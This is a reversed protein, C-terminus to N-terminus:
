YNGSFVEGGDGHYVGTPRACAVREAIGAAAAYNAYNIRECTRVGATWPRRNADEPTHTHPLPSSPCRTAAPCFKRVRTRRRGVARPRTRAVHICAACTYTYVHVRIYRMRALERTHPARVFAAPTRPTSRSRAPPRAPLCSILLGPSAGRGPYFRARPRDPPTPPPQPPPAPYPTSSRRRAKMIVGEGTRAPAHQHTRARNRPLFRPVALGSSPRRHACM